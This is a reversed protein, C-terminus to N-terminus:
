LPTPHTLWPTSVYLSCHNTTYLLPYHHPYCPFPQLHTLFAFHPCAPPCAPAPPHSPGVLPYFGLSVLPPYYLPTPFPPSLLLIAIFPDFHCFPPAPTLAPSPIYIPAQPTYFCRHHTYLYRNPHPYALSAPLCQIDTQTCFCCTSRFEIMNERRQKVQIKVM